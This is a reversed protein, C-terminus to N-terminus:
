ADRVLTFEYGGNRVYKNFYAGTSPAARLAVAMQPPVGRFQYIRGNHFEIELTATAEDYGVSAISSSSVPERQM